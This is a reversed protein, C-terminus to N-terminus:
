ASGTKKFKRIERHVAKHFTDMLIGTIERSNFKSRNAQRVPMIELITNTLFVEDAQLLEEPTINKEITRIRKGAAIGIVTQRTIGDLIGSDVSPTILIGKKVMFINSVTGETVYGRDNLMVAEFAHAKVAEVKALINNLFNLSKIRPDVAEKLNKRVGSIIIRIGKGYKSDPIPTLQRTIVILNPSSCLSPDIGPPGEGRTVSVRIYADRLRNVELTGYIIEQLRRTGCPIKLSILSSSRKLRKLHASLRFVMGDYSRMTEFVGDGYLIGRDFVSVSAKSSPILKDNIFVKM